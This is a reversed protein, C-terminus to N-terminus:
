WATVRWSPDCNLKRVKKLSDYRSFSPWDRANIQDVPSERRIDRDFKFIKVELIKKRTDLKWWKLFRIDRFASTPIKKLQNELILKILILILGCFILANNRLVKIAFDGWVNNWRWGKLQFPHWKWLLEWSLIYLKRAL